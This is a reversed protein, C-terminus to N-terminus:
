DNTDNKRKDKRLKKSLFIDNIEDLDIDIDENIKRIITEQLGFILFLIFLIFFLISFVKLFITYIFYNFIYDRNIYIMILCTSSLIICLGSIIYFFIEKIRKMM